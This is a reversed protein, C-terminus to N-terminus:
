KTNPEDSLTIDLKGTVTVKLQKNIAKALLQEAESRKAALLDLACSHENCLSGNREKEGFLERNHYEVRSSFFNLMLQRADAASLQVNLFNIEHQENQSISFTTEM